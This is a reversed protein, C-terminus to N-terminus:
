WKISPSLPRLDAYCPADDPGGAPSSWAGDRLVTQISTSGARCDCFHVTLRPTM